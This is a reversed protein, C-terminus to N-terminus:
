AESAISGDQRMGAQQLTATATALVIQRGADNLQLFIEMLNRAEPAFKVDDRGAIYDLSVGFFDALAILSALPPESDGTEYKAYTTRDIQLLDALEKQYLKRATRLEKLRM